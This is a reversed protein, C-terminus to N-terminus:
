FSKKFGLAFFNSGKLWKNEETYTLDRVHSELFLRPFVAEFTKYHVTKMVKFPSYFKVLGDRSLVPDIRVSNGWLLNKYREFDKRYDNLEKNIPM